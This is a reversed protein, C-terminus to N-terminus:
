IVRETTTPHGTITRYRYAVYEANSQTYSPVTFGDITAYTYDRGYTIDLYTWYGRQPQRVKVVWRRKSKRTFAFRIRKILDSM